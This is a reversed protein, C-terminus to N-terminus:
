GSDVVVCRSLFSLRHGSDAGVEVEHPVGLLREVEVLRHEAGLEERRDGPHAVHGGEGRWGSSDSASFSITMCTSSGIRAPWTMMPVSMSSDSPWSRRRPLEIVILRLSSSRESVSRSNLSRDSPPLSWNPRMSMGQPAYQPVQASRYPIRHINLQGFWGAAYGGLRGVSLM